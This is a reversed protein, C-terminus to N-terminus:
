TQPSCYATGLRVPILRRARAEAYRARRRDRANRRRRSASNPPAYRAEEVLKKIGSMRGLFKVEVNWVEGNRDVEASLGGAGMGAISPVANAAGIVERSSATPSKNSSPFISATM